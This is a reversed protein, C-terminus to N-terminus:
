DDALRVQAVVPKGGDRAPYEIVATPWAGKPYARVNIAAFTGPGLGKTGVVATMDIVHGSRLPLQDYFLDLTLPGGFHVVPAKKASAAFALEGRIDHGATQMGGDIRVSLTRDENGPFYRLQEYRVEGGEGWVDGIAVGYKARKFERWAPPEKAGFSARVHLADGDLVLWVLTKAEPGFALLCYKPAPTAYKPEGKLDRDIKALDAAGAPSLGAVVLLAAPLLRSPCM